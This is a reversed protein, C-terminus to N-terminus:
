LTEAIQRATDLKPNSGEYHGRYSKPLERAICFGLVDTILRRKKACREKLVTPELPKGLSISIKARTLADDGVAFLSETGSIGVPIVALDPFELYRSVAALTEQMRADRSRTGEVFILLNDGAALRENATDVTAHAIRAVERATMVAEGSARSSSQPTKITSFARSSFRRFPTAYVKPGAFVTLQKTLEGHGGRNVLLEFLNADSYSLHNPLFLLPRGAVAKLKEVGTVASEPKVLLEGMAHNVLRAVAESPHFGWDAEPNTVIAGLRLVESVSLEDISSGVLQRFKALEETSRNGVFAQAQDLLANRFQSARASDTM